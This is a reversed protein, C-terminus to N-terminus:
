KTSTFFVRCSMRYQQNLPLLCCVPWLPNNAPPKTEYTKPVVCREYDGSGFDLGIDSRIGFSKSVCTKVDGVIKRKQTAFEQDTYFGPCAVGGASRVNNNNFPAENRVAPGPFDKAEAVFTLAVMGLVAVALQRM